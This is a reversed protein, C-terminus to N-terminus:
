AARREVRVTYGLGELERVLRRAPADVVVGDHRAQVMLTAFLM